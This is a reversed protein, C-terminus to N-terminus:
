AAGGTAVAIERITAWDLGELNHHCSACLIVVNDEVYQGGDKGPIVRHMHLYSLNDPSLGCVYCQYDYKRLMEARFRSKWAFEAETDLEDLLEPIAEIARAVADHARRKQKDDFERPSFSSYRGDTYNWAKEAENWAGFEDRSYSYEVEAEILGLIARIAFLARRKMSPPLSSVGRRMMEALSEETVRSELQQRLTIDEDNSFAVKIEKWTPQYSSGIVWVKRTNDYMRYGQPIMSKVAELVARWTKQSCKDWTVAISGDQQHEEYFTISQYQTEQRSDQSTSSDNVSACM